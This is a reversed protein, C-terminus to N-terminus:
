QPIRVAIAIQEPAVRLADDLVGGLLMVSAVPLLRAVLHTAGRKLGHAIPHEQERLRLKMILDRELPKRPRYQTSNPLAHRSPAEFIPAHLVLQALAQEELRWPHNRM